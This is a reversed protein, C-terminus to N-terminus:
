LEPALCNVIIHLGHPEKFCEVMCACAISWRWIWSQSFDRWQHKSIHWITTVRHNLQLKM